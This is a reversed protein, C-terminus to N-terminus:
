KPTTNFTMEHLMGSGALITESNKETYSTSTRGANRLPRGKFVANCRKKIAHPLVLVLISGIVLGILAHSLVVVLWHSSLTLVLLRGSRRSFALPWPAGPVLKADSQRLFHHSNEPGIM